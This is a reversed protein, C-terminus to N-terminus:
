NQEICLFLYGVVFDFSVKGEEGGVNNVLNIASVAGSEIDSLCVFCVRESCM